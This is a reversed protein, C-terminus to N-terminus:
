GAKPLEEIFEDEESTSLQEVPRLSMHQLLGAQEAAQHNVDPSGHRQIFLELLLRLEQSIQVIRIGFGSIQTAGEGKAEVVRAVKALFKLRHTEGTEPENLEVTCDLLTSLPIFPYNAFNSCLVFAGTASLDKTTFLYENPAGLSRLSIKLSQPIRMNDIRKPKNEKRDDKKKSNKLANASEEEDQSPEDTKKRIWFAM